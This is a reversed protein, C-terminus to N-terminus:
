SRRSRKRNTNSNPTTTTPQSNSWWEDKFVEKSLFEKLATRVVDSVSRFKPYERRISAEIKKKQSEEIRFTIRM